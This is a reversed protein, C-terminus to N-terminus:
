ILSTKTMMGQFLKKETERKRPFNPATIEKKIMPTSSKEARQM